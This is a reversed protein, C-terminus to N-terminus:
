GSGGFPRAADSRLRASIPSAAASLSSASLCRVTLSRRAPAICSALPPVATTRHALGDLREEVALDRGEVLPRRLANAARARRQALAGGRTALGTPLASVAIGALEAPAM